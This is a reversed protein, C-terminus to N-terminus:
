PGTPVRETWFLGKKLPVLPTTSSLEQTHFSTLPQASSIPIEHLGTMVPPWFCVCVANTVGDDQCYVLLLKLREMIIGIKYQSDSQKLIIKVILKLLKLPNYSDSVVQWDADQKIKDLLVMTCQGLVLSYVKGRSRVLCDTREHYTRWSNSFVM